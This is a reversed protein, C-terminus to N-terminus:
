QQSPNSGQGTNGGQEGLLSQHIAFEKDGDQKRGDRSYAVALNYHAAPNRPELKVAMELPTIADAYRKDAVLCMGLAVFAEGFQPDLKTARSLHNVAEDWQQNQRALEGLVYEAGANKPDIQLELVFEQKAEGTADATPNPKSLLLRGLRFHVGPLNPNQKLILRYQKEADDWKGQSEFSEALLEHAQYSNPADRALDQSSMTSLDSYAHVAVYLADPDKPFERTLIRLFELAADSQHLTMACRVGDLGLKLKLEREKVQAISKRLIPLAEGCRGNEALTAANRATASPDPATKGSQAEGSAGSCIILLLLCPLFARRFM